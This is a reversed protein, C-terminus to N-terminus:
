RNLTQPAGGSTAFYQDEGVIGPMLAGADDPAKQQPIFRHSRSPQGLDLGRM